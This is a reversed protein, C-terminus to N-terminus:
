LSWRRKSKKRPKGNGFNRKAIKHNEDIGKFKINVNNFKIVGSIYESNINYLVDAEIESSGIGTLIGTAKKDFFGEHSALSHIEAKFKVENCKSIFKECDFKSQNTNLCSFDYSPPFILSFLFPEDGASFAIFSEFINPKQYIGDYVQTYFNKLPSYIIIQSCNAENYGFKDWCNQSVIKGNEYNIISLIKGNEYYKKNDGELNGNKYNKEEKLQKNKWYTRFLGEKKGNKYKGIFLTDKINFTSRNIDSKYYHSSYVDGNLLSMDKKLYTLSDNPSIIEEVLYRSQDSCSFLIILLIYLSIKKM